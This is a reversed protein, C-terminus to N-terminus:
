HLVMQSKFKQQLIFVLYVINELTPVSKLLTKDLYGLPSQRFRMASLRNGVYSKRSFKIEVSYERCRIPQTRSNYFLFSIALTNLEKFRSALTPGNKKIKVPALM